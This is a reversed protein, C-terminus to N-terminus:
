FNFSIFFIFADALPSVATCRPHPETSTQSVNMDAHLAPPTDSQLHLCHSEFKQLSEFLM